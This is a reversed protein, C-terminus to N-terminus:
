RREWHHYWIVVSAVLVDVMGVCLVIVCLVVCMGAFLLFLYDSLCISGAAACLMGVRRSWYLSSACLYLVSWSSLWDMMDACSLRVRHIISAFVCVSPCFHKGLRRLRWLLRLPVPRNSTGSM